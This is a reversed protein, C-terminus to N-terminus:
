ILKVVLDRKLFKQSEEKWTEREAQAKGDAARRIRSVGVGLVFIVVSDFDAGILIDRPNFLSDLVLVDRDVDPISVAVSAPSPSM